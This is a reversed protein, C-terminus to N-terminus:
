PHIEGLLDGANLPPACVEPQGSADALFGFRTTWLKGGQLGCLRRGRVEIRLALSLSFLYAIADGAVLRALAM